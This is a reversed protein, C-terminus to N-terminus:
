TDLGKRGCTVIREESTKLTDEETDMPKELTVDILLGVRQVGNKCCEM